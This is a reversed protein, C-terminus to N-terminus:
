RKIARVVVHYIYLESFGNLSFLLPSAIFSTNEVTNKRVSVELSVSAQMFEDKLM